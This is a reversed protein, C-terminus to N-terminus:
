AVDTVQEAEGARASPRLSMLPTACGVEILFRYLARYARAAMMRRAPHGDYIFGHSVGPYTRLRVEHGHSELVDKLKHSQDVPVITDAEGHLLLVPVDKFALPRLASHDSAATRFPRGEKLARRVPVFMPHRVDSLHQVDYMGYVGIVGRPVPWTTPWAQAARLALHAGASEGGIALRSLDFGFRASGEGLVWAFARMVDDRQTQSDCQPLLRYGPTVVAIGRAALIRALPAVMKRDCAIWGGGHLFVLTPLPAGPVRRAPLYVDAAHRPDEGFRVDWTVEVTGAGPTLGLRHAHHFLASFGQGFARLGTLAARTGFPIHPSM